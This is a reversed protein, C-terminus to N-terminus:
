SPIEVAVAFHAPRFVIDWDSAGSVSCVLRALRGFRGRAGM